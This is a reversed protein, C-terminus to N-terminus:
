RRTPEVVVTVTVIDSSVPSLGLPLKARVRYDRTTSLGAINITETEATTVGSVAGSEGKVELQSPKVEYRTVRHGFAPQGLFTPTVLIRKSAPAAAVVPSVSVEAPQSRVFPVRRNSDDVIEIPLSITAGPRVDALDLSVRASKVKPLSSEPGIVTIENPLVSAGGYIYEKATQGIPEVDVKRLSSSLNQIDLTVRAFRPEITVRSRTPGEVEVVYRRVGPRARSLDIVGRVTSKELQDLYQATGTAKMEVTLNDGLVTLHEPLNRFELPADFLQEKVTAISPALALRTGLAILLSAVILMINERRFM